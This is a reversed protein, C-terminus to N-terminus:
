GRPLPNNSVPPDSLPDIIELNPTDQLSGSGNTITVCLTLALMITTIFKFINKNMPILGKKFKQIM